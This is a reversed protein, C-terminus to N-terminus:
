PQKMLLLHADPLNNLEIVQCRSCESSGPQQCPEHACVALLSQIQVLDLDHCPVQLLVTVHHDRFVVFQLDWASLLLKHCMDPDTTAQCTCM